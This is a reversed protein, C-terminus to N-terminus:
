NVIMTLSNSTAVQLPSSLTVDFMIAQLFIQAGALTQNNPIPFPLTATNGVQPAAIVAESSTYILCNPAGLPGLDLPLPIGNVQTNSVGGAFLMPLANPGAFSELLVTNGIDPCGSAGLWVTLGSGDACGVGQQVIGGSCLPLSFVFATSLSNDIVTLEQLLPNYHLGQTNGIGFGGMPTTSILSGGRDVEFITSGSSQTILFHDSAPVHTIGSLIASGSAPTFSFGGALQNGAKDCQLVGGTHSIFLTGTKRDVCIGVANSLSQPTSWGGLCNGQLDMNLVTGGGGNNVLWLTQTSPDYTIDNPTSIAPSCVAATFTTLPTGILDFTHVNQANQFAVVYYALGLEDQTIGINGNGGTFTDVFSRAFVPSLQASLHASFSLALAAALLSSPKQM